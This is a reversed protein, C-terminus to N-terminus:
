IGNYVLDSQLLLPEFGISTFNPLLNRAFLELPREFQYGLDNLIGIIPPKHSHVAMPVSSFVLTKPFHEYKKSNLTTAFIIDEYPLKHKSKSFDYVPIGSRTVKLWKWEGIIELNWKKLHEELEERLGIRNTIWFGVLCDDTIMQDLELDELVDENMQYTKKRKVSKNFWPPDAIVLDFRIDHYKSYSNIDTIDGIHFISNPPILFRNEDSTLIKASDSSNRIWSSMINNCFLSSFHSDDDIELIDTCSIAFRLHVTELVKKASNRAELNNDKVETQAKFYNSFGILKSIQKMENENSEEILKRKRNNGAFHSDTVFTGLIEFLESKMQNGFFSLEDIIIFKDAKEVISM